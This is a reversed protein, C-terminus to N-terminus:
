GNDKTPSPILDPYKALLREVEEQQPRNLPQNIGTCFKLTKLAWNMDKRVEGEIRAYHGDPYPCRDLLCECDDCVMMGMQDSGGSYTVHFNKHNCKLTKVKEEPTPPPTSGVPSQNTPM